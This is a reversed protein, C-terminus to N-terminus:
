CVHHKDMIRHIEEDEAAERKKKGSEGLTLLENDPLDLLEKARTDLYDATNKTADDLVEELLANLTWGIRPGPNVHFMEM